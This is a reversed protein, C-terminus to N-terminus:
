SKIEAVTRKSKATCRWRVAHSNQSPPPPTLNIAVQNKYKKTNCPAIKENVPFQADPDFFYYCYYYDDNAYGPNKIPPDQLNEGNVENVRSSM